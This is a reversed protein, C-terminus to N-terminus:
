GGCASVFGRTFATAAQVATLHLRRLQRMMDRRERIAKIALATTGRVDLGALVCAAQHKTGAVWGTAYVYRLAPKRYPARAYATRAGVPSIGSAKAEIVAQRVAVANSGALRELIRAQLSGLSSALAAVASVLTAFEVVAV